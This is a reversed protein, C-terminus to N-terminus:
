NKHRTSQEFIDREEVVRLGREPAHIKLRICESKQSKSLTKLCKFSSKLPTRVSSRSHVRGSRECSHLARTFAVRPINRARELAHSILSNKSFESHQRPSKRPGGRPCLLIFRQEEFLVLLLFLSSVCFCVRM